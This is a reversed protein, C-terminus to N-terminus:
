DQRTDPNPVVWVCEQDIDTAVVRGTYSSGPRSFRWTQREGNSFPEGDNLTGCEQPEEDELVEALFVCVQSFLEDFAAPFLIVLNGDKESVPKWLFGNEGDVGMTGLCRPNGSATEGNTGNTINTETTTTENTTNVSNDTNNSGKTDRAIQCAPLLLLLFPLLYKM